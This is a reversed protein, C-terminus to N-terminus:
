KNEKRFDLAELIMHDVFEKWHDEMTASLDTVEPIFNVVRHYLDMPYINFRSFLRSIASPCLTFEDHKCPDNRNGHFEKMIWALADSRAKELEKHATTKYTV